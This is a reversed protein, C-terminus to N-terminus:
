QGEEDANLLKSVARAIMVEENAKIVLVPKSASSHIHSAHRANAADEIAFDLFSLAQVIAARLAIDNEGIGGTFVLGDIGGLAAVMAGIERIIRYTFLEIAGRADANAAAADRLIRMDASLGSVGLLGSKQYLMTEIDSVGMGEERMLYFIVAPDLAGCRTGMMLGDLASFGMTTAISQGEKIACLSAGNGLHAAVVRGKALEPETRKLSDVIYNYSLGHFGYRKVGKATIARPLAFNQAHPPINAHFATDFCGFQLLHPALETLSDAAALNYPQHLPALPILARLATMKEATLRVPAIFIGGGHVIRHGAAVLHSLGYAKDVWALIRSIADRQDKITETSVSEKEEVFGHQKVQWHPKQGIGDVMGRAIDVEKGQEAIDFVAFKVSSSGANIVLALQM